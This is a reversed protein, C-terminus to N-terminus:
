HIVVFIKWADKFRLAAIQRQFSYKQTSKYRLRSESIKKFGKFAAAFLSNKKFLSNIIGNPGLIYAVKKAKSCQYYFLRQGKFMIELKPQYYIFYFQKSCNGLVGTKKWPLSTTEKYHRPHIRLLISDAIPLWPQLRIYMYYMLAREQKLACQLKEDLALSVITVLCWELSILAAVVMQRKRNRQPSRTRRLEQFILQGDASKKIIEHVVRSFHLVHKLHKGFNIQLYKLALKLTQMFLLSRNEWIELIHFYSITTQRCLSLFSYFRNLLESGM